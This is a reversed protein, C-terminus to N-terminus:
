NFENQSVQCIIIEIQRMLAADRGMNGRWNRQIVTAAEQDRDHKMQAWKRKALWRRVRSQVVEIDAVTFIYDAYCRFGRWYRQIKTAAEEHAERRYVSVLKTARWRRVASQVILVDALYHLYNMTCDYSRWQAQIVTASQDMLELWKQKVANRAARGRVFSQVIIIDRLDCQYSSYAYYGRWATQISMASQVMLERRAQEVFNTAARRRVLSQLIIIDHLDCQYNSRVYYGRWATQITLASHDVLERRKQEAIIRAVRRRLVSQIIIISCLDCQYSSYAYYSRWATQIKATSQDMLKQREHEAVTRAAQRRVLSQVIIIDLLDSRYSSYAYNGRWATQIKTASQDM